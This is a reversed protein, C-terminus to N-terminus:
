GQRNADAARQGLASPRGVLILGALRRRVRDVGGLIVLALRVFKGFGGLGDVAWGTIGFTYPEASTHDAQHPAIVEVRGKAVEVEVVTKAARTPMHLCGEAAQGTKAALDVVLHLLAQVVPNMGAPDIRIGLRLRRRSLRRGRGRCGAIGSRRRGRCGWSWRGGRFLGPVRM